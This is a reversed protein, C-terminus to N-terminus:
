PDPYDIMQHVLGVWDPIVQGEHLLRATTGTM